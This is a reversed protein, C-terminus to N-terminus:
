SSSSHNQVSDNVIIDLRELKDFFEMYQYSNNFHCVILNGNHIFKCVWDRLAIADSSFQPKNGSEKISTLLLVIGEKLICHSNTKLTVGYFFADKKVRFLEGPQPRKYLFVNNNKQHTM